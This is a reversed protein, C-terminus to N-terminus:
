SLGKRCAVVAPDTSTAYPTTTTRAARTNARHTVQAQGTAPVLKVETDGVTCNRELTIWTPGAATDTREEQFNRGVADVCERLRRGKNAINGCVPRGEGNTFPAATPVTPAATPRLLPRAQPARPRAPRADVATASLTVLAAAILAPTTM